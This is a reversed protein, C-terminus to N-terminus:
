RIKRNMSDRIYIFGECVNDLKEYQISNIKKLFKQHSKPLLATNKKNYLKIFKECEHQLEIETSSHILRESLFSINKNTNEIEGTIKKLFVAYDINSNIKNKEFTNIHTTASADSIYLSKITERAQNLLNIAYKGDCFIKADNTKEVPEVPEVLESIIKNYSSIENYDDQIKKWALRYGQIELESFKEYFEKVIEVKLTALKTDLIDVIGTQADKKMGFIKFVDIGRITAFISVSRLNEEYPRNVVLGKSEDKQAYVSLVEQLYLSPSLWKEDWRYQKKINTKYIFTAYILCELIYFDIDYIIYEARQLQIRAFVVKGENILHIDYSKNINNRMSQLIHKVNNIINNPIKLDSYKPKLNVEIILISLIAFVNINKIDVTHKNYFSYKIHPDNELLGGLQITSNVLVKIITESYIKDFIDENLIYLSLIKIVNCSAHTNTVNKNVNKLNYITPWLNNNAKAIRLLLDIFHNLIDLTDNIINSWNMKLLEFLLLDSKKEHLLQLSIIFRVHLCVTDLAVDDERLGSLYPELTTDMNLSLRNSSPINKKLFNKLKKKQKINDNTGSYIYIIDKGIYEYLEKKIYINQEKEQEENALMELIATISQLTTAIGEFQTIPDSWPPIGDIESSLRRSILWNLCDNYETHCQGQLDYYDLLEKQEKETIRNTIFNNISINGIM